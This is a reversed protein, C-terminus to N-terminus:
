RVAALCHELPRAPHPIVQRGQRSGALRSFECLPGIGARSAGPESVWEDVNPIMQLGRSLLQHFLPFDSKPQHARLAAERGRDTKSQSSRYSGSPRPFLVIKEPLQAYKLFINFRGVDTRAFTPAEHINSECRLVFM